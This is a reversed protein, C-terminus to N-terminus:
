RRSGRSSAKRPTFRHTPTRYVPEVYKKDPDVRASLVCNRLLPSLHTLSLPTEGNRAPFRINGRSAVLSHIVGSHGGSVAHHLATFGDVHNVDNANAGNDLLLQVVVNQGHGAALSLATEGDDYRFYNVDAGKEILLSVIHDYGRWSAQISLRTCNITLSAVCHPRVAMNTKQAM